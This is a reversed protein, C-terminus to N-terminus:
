VCSNCKLHKQKGTTKRLHRDQSKQWWAKGNMIFINYTMNAPPYKPQKRRIYTVLLFVVFAIVLLISAVVIATIIINKQLFGLLQRCPLDETHDDSGM